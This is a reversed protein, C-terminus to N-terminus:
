YDSIDFDGFIHDMDESSVNTNTSENTHGMNNINSIHDMNQIHATHDMSSNNNIHDMNTHDMYQKRKIHDMSELITWITQGTLEELLLARAQWYAIRFNKDGQPDRGLARAAEPLTINPNQLLITRIRDKM